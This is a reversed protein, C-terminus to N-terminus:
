AGIATIREFSLQLRDPQPILLEAGNDDEEKIANDDSLTDVRYLDPYVLQLLQNLPLTKFQSFFYSRDDARIGNKFAAQFFFLFNCRHKLCSSPM